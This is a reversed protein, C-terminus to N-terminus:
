LQVQTTFGSQLEAESFTERVKRVENRLEEFTMTSAKTSKKESSPMNNLKDRLQKAIDTM